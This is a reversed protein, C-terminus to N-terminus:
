PDVLGHCRDGGHEARDDSAKESRDIFIGDISESSRKAETSKAEKKRVFRVFRMGRKM